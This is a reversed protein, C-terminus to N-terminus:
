EENPVTGFDRSHTHHIFALSLSLAGSLSLSLAIITCKNDNPAWLERDHHLLEITTARQQKM